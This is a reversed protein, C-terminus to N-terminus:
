TMRSDEDHVELDQVALFDDGGIEDDIDNRPMLAGAGPPQYGAPYSYDDHMAGNFQTKKESNVQKVTSRLPLRFPSQPEIYEPSRASEISYNITVDPSKFPTDMNSRRRPIRSMSTSPTTSRLDQTIINSYRRSNM